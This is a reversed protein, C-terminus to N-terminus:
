RGVHHGILDHLIDLTRRDQEHQDEDDEIGASRQPTVPLRPHVFEGADCRHGIRCKKEGFQQSKRDSRHQHLQHTREGTHDDLEVM